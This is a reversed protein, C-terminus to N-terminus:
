AVDVDVMAARDASRATPSTTERVFLGSTAGRGSVWESRSGASMVDGRGSGFEPGRICCLGIDLRLTVLDARVVLPDARTACPSRRRPPRAVFGLTEQLELTVTDADHSSYAISVDQGITLNFDGGRQSLVIAGDVAPAWVVPGGLILGLHQLLPYGGKETTEIVGAYCRPGLAIAYPGGIGAEKLM